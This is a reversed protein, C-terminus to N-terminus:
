KWFQLAEALKDVATALMGSIGTMIRKLIDDFQPGSFDGHAEFRSRGEEEERYEAVRQDFFNKAGAPIANEVGAQYGFAQITEERAKRKARAEDDMNGLFFENLQAGIASFSEGVVDGVGSSTAGRVAAMGVGIGGGLGVAGMGKGVARRVGGAIRGGTKQARKALDRLDGKAQRTDLKLKVEAQDAM